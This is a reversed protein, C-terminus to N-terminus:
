DNGTQGAVARRVRYSKGCGITCALRLRLASMPGPEPMSCFRFSTITYQSRKCALRLGIEPPCTTQGTNRARRGHRLNSSVPKCLGSDVPSSGKRKTDARCPKAGQAGPTRAGRLPCSYSQAEEAHGEDCESARARTQYVADKGTPAILNQRSPSQLRILVIGHHTGPVFKRTDSFDMDQTILIRGERQAAQWIDADLRGTLNEGGVTRVDYTRARLEAAIQLPLNEDLKVNM